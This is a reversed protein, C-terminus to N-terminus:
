ASNHFTVLDLDRLSYCFVLIEWRLRFFAVKNLVFFFILVTYIPIKDSSSLWINMNWILQHAFTHLYSLILRRPSKVKSCLTRMVM